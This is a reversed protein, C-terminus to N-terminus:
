DIEVVGKRGATKFKGWAVKIEDPTLSESSIGYLWYVPSVDDVPPTFDGLDSVRPASVGNFVSDFASNLEACDMGGHAEMLIFTVKKM